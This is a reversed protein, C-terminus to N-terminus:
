TTVLLRSPAPGSAGVAVERRAADGPGARLTEVLEEQVAQLEEFYGGATAGRNIHWSDLSGKRKM